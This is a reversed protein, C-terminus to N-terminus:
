VVRWSQAALGRVLGNSPNIELTGGGSFSRIWTGTNARMEGLPQGLGQATTVLFPSPKVFAGSYERSATFSGNFRTGMLWSGFAYDVVKQTVTSAHCHVAKGLGEAATLFDVFRLWDSGVAPPQAVGERAVFFEINIGDVADVIARQVPDTISYDAGLNIWLKKGATHLDRSLRLILGKFAQRWAEVNPFEKPYGPGSDYGWMKLDMEDVYAGDFRISDSVAAASFMDLVDPHAVNLLTDGQPSNISRWVRKGDPYHALYEERLSSNSIPTTYSLTDSPRHGPFLFAYLEAGAPFDSRKVGAYQQFDYFRADPTPGTALYRHTAWQIGKAVPPDQLGAVATAATDLSVSLSSLGDVAAFMARRTELLDARIARLEAVIDDRAM